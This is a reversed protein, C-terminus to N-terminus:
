LRKEISAATSNYANIEIEFFVVTLKQIVFDYTFVCYENDLESELIAPTLKKLTIKIIKEMFITRKLLVEHHVIYIM